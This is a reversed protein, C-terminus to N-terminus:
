VHYELWVRISEGRLHPELDVVLEDRLKLVAIASRLLDHDGDLAELLTESTAGHHGAKDLAQWVLRVHRPDRSTTTAPLPAMIDLSEVEQGFTLQQGCADEEMAVLDANSTATATAMAPGVAPFLAWPPNDVRQTAEPDTVDPETMDMPESECVPAPNPAPTRGYPQTMGDPEEPQTM